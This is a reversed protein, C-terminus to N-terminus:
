WGEARANDPIGSYPQYSRVHIIYENFQLRARIIPFHCSLIGGQGTALHRQMQRPGDDRPM